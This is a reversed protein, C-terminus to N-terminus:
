IVRDLICSFCHDPHERARALFRRSHVLSAGILPQREKQAVAITRETMEPTSSGNSSLTVIVNPNSM